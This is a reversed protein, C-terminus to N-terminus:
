CKMEFRKSYTNLISENGDTVRVLTLQFEIDLFRKHESHPTMFMRGRVQDDQLVDTPEDFLFLTQKWHTDIADPNTTLKISNSTKDRGADMMVNAAAEMDSAFDFWCDFWGALGCFKGSMICSLQFTVDVRNLEAQTVTNCNMTFVPTGFSLQNEPAPVYDVQAGKLANKLSTHSLLSFDIDYPKSHWFKVADAYFDSWDLAAVFITAKSPLMSGGPKLWKDRAVLVSNFMSEFLLFYGMWESVIVDVKEPLEIKEAEGKIVEIVNSLGNRAVIQTAIEAMNSAEVAYVKRAGARAAFISLIGTGCGVDLVVKDKLSYTATEQMIAKRYTETRATDSIMDQHISLDGYGEFYYADARDSYGVSSEM